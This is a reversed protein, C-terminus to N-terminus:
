PMRWGWPDGRLVSKADELLIRRTPERWSGKPIQRSELWLRVAARLRVFIGM